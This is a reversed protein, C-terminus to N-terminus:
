SKNSTLFLPASSKGATRDLIQHLREARHALEVAALDDDSLEPKSLPNKM